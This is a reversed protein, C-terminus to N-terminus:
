YTALIPHRHRRKSRTCRGLTWITLIVVGYEFIRKRGYRDALVGALLLFGGFALAYASMIWSQYGPSINLDKSISPLAINVATLLLNDILQACGTVAMVAMGSPSRLAATREVERESAREDFYDLASPNNLPATSTPTAAASPGTGPTPPYSTDVYSYSLSPLTSSHTPLPETPGPAADLPPTLPFTGGPPLPSRSRSTASSQGQVEGQAKAKAQAQAEEDDELVSFGIGEAGEGAGNSFHVRSSSLAAPPLVMKEPAARSPRRQSLGPNVTRGHENSPGGLRASSAISPTDGSENVASNGTGSGSGSGNGSGNGDSSSNGAFLAPQQLHPSASTPASM